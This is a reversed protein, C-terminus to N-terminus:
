DEGKIKDILSISQDFFDINNQLDILSKKYQEKVLKIEEKVLELQEDINNIKEICYSRESTLKEITKLHPLIKLKVKTNNTKSNKLKKNIIQSKYSLNNQSKTKMRKKIEEALVGFNKDLSFDDTEKKQVSKNSKKKDIMNWSGNRRLVKIVSDDM